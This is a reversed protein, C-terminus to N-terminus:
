PNAGLYIQSKNLVYVPSNSNTSIQYALDGQLATIYVRPFDNPSRAKTLAPGERHFKSGSSMQAKDETSQKLLCRLVNRKPIRVTNKM